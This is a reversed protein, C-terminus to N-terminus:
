EELPECVKIRIEVESLVMCKNDMEGLPAPINYKIVGDTFIKLYLYIIFPIKGVIYGAKNNSTLYLQTYSARMVNLMTMGLPISYEGYTDTEVEESILTQTIFDVYRPKFPKKFSFRTVRM